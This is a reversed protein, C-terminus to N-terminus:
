VDSVGRLVQMESFRLSESLADSVDCTTLIETLLFRSPMLMLTPMREWWRSPDQKPEQFATSVCREMWLDSKECSVRLVFSPSKLRRLVRVPPNVEHDGTTLFPIVMM